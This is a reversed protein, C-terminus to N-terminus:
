LVKTSRVHEVPNSFQKVPKTFVFQAKNIFPMNIKCKLINDCGLEVEVHTPPSGSLQYSGMWEGWGLCVRHHQQAAATCCSSTIIPSLVLRGVDNESNIHKIFIRV